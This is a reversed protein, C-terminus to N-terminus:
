KGERIVRVFDNVLDRRLHRYLRKFGDGHPKRYIHKLWPSRHYHAYQIHHSVEHAVTVLMHGTFSGGVDIAGIVPDRAYSPYETHIGNGVQWYCTNIRIVNRGARSPTGREDHRVHLVGVARDIANDPLFLDYDKHMLHNVCMRVMTEILEVHGLPVTSDVKM